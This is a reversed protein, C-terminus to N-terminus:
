ILMLNHYTSQTRIAYKSHTQARFIEIRVLACFIKRSFINITLTYKMLFTSFIVLELSMWWSKGTTEFM